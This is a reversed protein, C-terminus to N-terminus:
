DLSPHETAPEETPLPIVYRMTELEVYGLGERRLKSIEGQLFDDREDTRREAEQLMEERAIPDPYRATFAEGSEYCAILWDNKASNPLYKQRAEVADKVLARFREHQRKGDMADISGDQPSFVSDGAEGNKALAETEM